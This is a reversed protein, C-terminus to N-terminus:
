PMHELLLDMQSRLVKETYDSFNNESVGRLCFILHGQRDRSKELAYEQEIVGVLGKNCKALNVDGYVSNCLRVFHTPFYCGLHDIKIIYEKDFAGCRASEGSFVDFEFGAYKEEDKFKATLENLERLVSEDSYMGNMIILSIFVKLHSCVYARGRKANPAMFGIKPRARVYTGSGPRPLVYM